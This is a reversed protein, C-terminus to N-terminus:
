VSWDFARGFLNVQVKWPAPSIHLRPGKWVRTAAVHLTGLSCLTLTFTLYYLYRVGRSASGVPGKTASKETLLLILKLYIM